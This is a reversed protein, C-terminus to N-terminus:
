AIVKNRERERLVRMKAQTPKEPLVTEVRQSLAKRIPMCILDLLRGQEIAASVTKAGVASAGGDSAAECTAPTIQNAHCGCELERNKRALWDRTGLALGWYSQFISLDVM